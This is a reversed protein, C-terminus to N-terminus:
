TQLSCGVQATGYLGGLLVLFLREGHQGPLVPCVGRARWPSETWQSTCAGGLLPVCCSVSLTLARLQLVLERSRGRQTKSAAARAGEPKHWRPDLKTWGNVSQICGQRTGAHGSGWHEPVTSIDESGEQTHESWTRKTSSQTRYMRASLYVAYVRTSSQSSEM